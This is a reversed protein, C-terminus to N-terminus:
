RFSSAGDGVMEQQESRELSRRSRTKSPKLLEQQSIPPFWAMEMNPDIFPHVLVFSRPFMSAICFFIIQWQVFTIFPFEEWFASILSFYTQFFLDLIHGVPVHGSDLFRMWGIQTKNTNIETKKQAHFNHNKSEPTGNTKRNNKRKPTAKKSKTKNQKKQNKWEPRNQIQKESKNKQKRIKRRVSPSIPSNSNM